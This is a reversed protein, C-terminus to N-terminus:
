VKRTFDVVLRPAPKMRECMMEEKPCPEALLYCHNGHESDTYRDVEKQHTEEQMLLLIKGMLLARERIRKM